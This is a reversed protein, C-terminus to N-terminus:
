EASTVRWVPVSFEFELGPRGGRSECLEQGRFCVPPKNTSHQKVDVSVVLSILSPPGPRGGRSECLEQVRFCVPPKNTSHQKVDVSVVLSILSPPGPRGGRSECLEQVRVCTPLYTCM